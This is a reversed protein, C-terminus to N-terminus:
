VPLLGHGYCARLETEREISWPTRVAAGPLAELFAHWGAVASAYEPQVGRNALTLRCGAGEPELDYSVISAPRSPDPEPWTHALRRLPKLELIGGQM